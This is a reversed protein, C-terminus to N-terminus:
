ATSRFRVPLYPGPSHSGECETCGSHAQANLTAKARTTNLPVHWVRGSYILSLVMEYLSPGGMRRSIHKNVDDKISAISAPHELAASTAEVGARAEGPCDDTAGGVSAGDGDGV